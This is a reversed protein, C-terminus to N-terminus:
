TLNELYTEEYDIKDFQELFKLSSFSSLRCPSIYGLFTLRTLSSRVSEKM